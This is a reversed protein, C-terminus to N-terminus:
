DDLRAEAETLSRIAQQENCGLHRMEHWIDEQPFGHTPQPENPKATPSPM